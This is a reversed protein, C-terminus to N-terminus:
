KVVSSFNDDKTIILHDLLSIDFLSLSNRLKDTAIIDSESPIICGSPHNHAVIVSVANVELAFRVIERSSILQKDITGIFIIKKLIVQNRSDLYLAAFQEQHTLVFLSRLEYFADKACNIKTKKTKPIACRKSLELASIIQCAKSIGLGKIQMLSHPTAENLRDLPFKQLIKSSLSFVDMKFHGKCIIASILELNSLSGVGYKVIKERPREEKDLDSIEM